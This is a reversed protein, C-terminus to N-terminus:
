LSRRSGIDELTANAADLLADRLQEEAVSDFVFGGSPWSFSFGVDYRRVTTSTAEGVPPPPSPPPPLPPPPPPEMPPPTCSSGDGGCVECKDFLLGSWPVGDCGACTSNDGACVFCADDVLGSWPVGDCGACSLSDGGCVGCEDVTKGSLPVADCGGGVVGVGVSLTGNTLACDCTAHLPSTKGVGRIPSCGDLTWGGLPWAGAWRVCALVDTRDPLACDGTGSFVAARRDEMTCQDFRDLLAQLREHEQQAAQAAATSLLPM